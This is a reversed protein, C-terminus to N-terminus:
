AYFDYNNTAILTGEHFLQNNHIHYGMNNDFLYLNNSIIVKAKRGSGGILDYEM